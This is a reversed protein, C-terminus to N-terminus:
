IKNQNKYIIPEIRDIGDPPCKQHIKYSASLTTVPVALLRERAILCKCKRCIGYTKDKIRLLADDLKKIYESLRHVQAFTKEQELAEPGQEAMHMSYIMSEEAFDINNYEELREKYMRLNESAENKSKIISDKFMELDEDSYRPGVYNESNIYDIKENEAQNKQTVKENKESNSLIEDINNASIDMRPINDEQHKNKKKTRAPAKKEVENKIPQAQEAIPKKVKSESTKTKTVKSEETLKTPKAEKSDSIKEKSVSKKVVKETKSTEKAVKSVQESKKDLDTKTKKTAPKTAIPKEVAKEKSKSVSKKEVNTANTIKPAKKSEVAKVKDPSKKMATDKAANKDVKKETKSSLSAKTKSANTKTIKETEKNKEEKKIKAAM